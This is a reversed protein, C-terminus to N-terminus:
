GIRYAVRMLKALLDPRESPPCCLIKKILRLTEERDHEPLDAILVGLVELTLAVQQENMELPEDAM